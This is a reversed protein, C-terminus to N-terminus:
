YLFSHDYFDVVPLSLSIKNRIRLRNINERFKRCCLRTSTLLHAFDFKNRAMNDVAIRLTIILKQTYKTLVLATNNVRLLIGAVLVNYVGSINSM